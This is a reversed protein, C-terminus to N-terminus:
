LEGPVRYADDFVTRFDYVDKFDEKSDRDDKFLLEHEVLLFVIEGIDETRSVGWQELVVRAMLGFRELALRRVGELLEEATLHRREGRQRLRRDMHDLAENVFHFAQPPYRGDEVAVREIAVSRTVKRRLQSHKKAAM